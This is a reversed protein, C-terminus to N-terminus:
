LFLGRRGGEGMPVMVTLEPLSHTGVATTSRDDSHAITGGARIETLARGEAEGDEGCHTARDM